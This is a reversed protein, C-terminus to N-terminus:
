TFLSVDDFVVEINHLDPDLIFAAYYGPYYDPRYGPPGNDKGGAELGAKYFDEVMQKSGATFALCSFSHVAQGAEGSHIWFDRKGNADEIGYGASNGKEFLLRYGLPALLHSFFKKSKELDNVRMTIHNIM